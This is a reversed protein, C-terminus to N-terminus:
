RNWVIVGRNVDLTYDLNRLINMGLLGQHGLDPGQSRIIALEANPIRYPGIQIYDVEAMRVPIRSGGVVVAERTETGSLMIQRAARQHLITFSAGTDFLLNTQIRRGFHGIEVPVLVRNGRVIVPSERVDPGPTSLADTEDDVVAATSDEERRSDDPDGQAHPDEYVKVTDLRADPIHRPDDVYHVQGDADTYRYFEAAAGELVPLCVLAVLALTLRLANSRILVTLRRDFPQRAPM